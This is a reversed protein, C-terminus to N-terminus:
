GALRGVAELKHAQRLREEQHWLAAEQEKRDTIDQLIGLYSIIKGDADRVPISSDALWRTQGDKTRVKMDAKWSTLECRRSKEMAQAHTLGEADGRMIIEETNDLWIQSSMEEPKFGLIKEIGEDMFVYQMGDTNIEYAV